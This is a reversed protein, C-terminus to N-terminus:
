EVIEIPPFLYHNTLESISDHPIVEAKVPGLGNIKPNNFISNPDIFHQKNSFDVALEVSIIKDLTHLRVQLHPITRAGKMHVVPDVEIHQITDTDVQVRYLANRITNTGSKQYSPDVFQFENPLRHSSDALTSLEFWFWDKSKPSPYAELLFAPVAPIVNAGHQNNGDIYFEGGVKSRFGQRFFSPFLASYRQIRPFLKGNESNFGLVLQIEFTQLGSIADYLMRELLGSSNVQLRNSWKLAVPPPEIRMTSPLLPSATARTPFGIVVGKGKGDVGVDRKVDGERLSASRLSLSDLAEVSEIHLGLPRAPLRDEIMLEARVFDAHPSQTQIELTPIKQGGMMSDSLRFQFDGVQVEKAYVSPRALPDTGMIPQMRAAPSGRLERASKVLTARPKGLIYRCLIPKVGYRVGNPTLTPGAADIARGAERM